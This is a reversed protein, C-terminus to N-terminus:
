FINADHNEYKIDTWREYIKVSEDLGHWGDYIKKAKYLTIPTMYQTIEGTSGKVFVWQKKSVKM